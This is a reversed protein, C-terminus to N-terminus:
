TLAGSLAALEADQGALAVCAQVAFSSSGCKVWRSMEIEPALGEPFASYRSLRFFPEVRYDTDRLM